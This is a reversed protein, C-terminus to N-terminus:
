AESNDERLFKITDECWKLWETEYRIGQQLTLYRYKEALSLSQPDVFYKGEIALYTKLIDKHQARHNELEKIIKNKPVVSAAFLKVLLEDKMPSVESPELIWKRLYDKGTETVSFVKKDPRGEQRVIEAIIYGQEELKSLERYIQQQTAHWFFGVSGAFKKSLDYGSCASDVLAALIAHAITM